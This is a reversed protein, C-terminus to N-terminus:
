PKPNAKPAYLITSIKGDVQLKEESREYNSTVALRLIKLPESSDHVAILFRMLGEVTCTLRADVVIERFDGNQEVSRQDLGPRPDAQSALAGVVFVFGREIGEREPRDLQDMVRAWERRVFDEQQIIENASRQAARARVLEAGLKKWKMQWPSVVLTELIFAAAVASAAISLWQTRRTMM